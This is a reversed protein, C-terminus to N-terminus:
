TGARLFYGRERVLVDWAPLTYVIVLRRGDDSTREAYIYGRDLKTVKLDPVDRLGCTWVQGVRPSGPRSMRTSIARGILITAAAFLAAVVLQLVDGWM